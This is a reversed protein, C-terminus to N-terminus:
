LMRMTGVGDQVMELGMCDFADSVCIGRACADSTLEARRVQSRGACRGCRMGGSLDRVVAPASRM